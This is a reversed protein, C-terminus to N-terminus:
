IDILDFTDIHGNLIPNRSTNIVVISALRISYCDRNEVLRKVLLSFLNLSCASDKKEAIHVNDIPINHQPTLSNMLM